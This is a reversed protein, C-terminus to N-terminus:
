FTTPAVTEDLLGSFSKKMFVKWSEDIGSEGSMMMGLDSLDKPPTDPDIFYSPPEPLPMSMAEDFYAQDYGYPMLTPAPQITQQQYINDPGQQQYDQPYQAPPYLSLYEVLSPHVDPMPESVPTSSSTSSAPSSISSATTTPTSLLSDRQNPDKNRKSILKSVLVRTQGGFLSLEDEGLDQLYSGFGTPPPTPNGSRFQSYVQFAKERLKCL